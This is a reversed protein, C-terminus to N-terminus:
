QDEERVTNEPLRLCLELGEIESLENFMEDIRSNLIEIFVHKKKPDGGTAFIIDTASDEIIGKLCADIAAMNIAFETEVEERKLWLGKQKEIEFELQTNKMQVSKLEAEAKDRYFQDLKGDDKGNSKVKKLFREAYARVESESVSGDPNVKVLGAKEDNYFKSKQIKYGLNQLFRIAAMRNEFDASAESGFYKQEIEAAKKRLAEEASQWDKLRGASNNTQYVKMTEVVANYLTTLTAKEEDTSAEILRQIEMKEM